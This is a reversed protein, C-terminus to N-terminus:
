KDTGLKEKLAVVQELEAKTKAIVELAESADISLKVTRHSTTMEQVAERLKTKAEWDLNTGWKEIWAELPTKDITRV